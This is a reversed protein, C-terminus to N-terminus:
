GLSGTLIQRMRARDPSLLMSVVRGDTDVTCSEALAYTDADYTKYQNLVEDLRTRLKAAIRSAADADVAEVIIVEGPFAGSMTAFSASQAVDASQIGYLDLLRDMSIEMYDSIGLDSLIKDRVGSLSVGSTAAPEQGAAAEPPQAPAELKSPPAEPPQAGSEPPQAPAEPPQGEPEQTSAPPEPPQDSGDPKEAPPEPSDTGPGADAPGSVAGDPAGEEAPGAADAPADTGDTADAPEAADNGADAAASPGTGASDQGGCAALGLALSLCLASVLALYLLKKM